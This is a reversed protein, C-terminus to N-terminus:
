LKIVITGCIKDSFTQRKSDWLPWLYGLYCPIADIIHALYRLFSLMPGTVDGTSERLLKTGMVSKGISQGTRGQRFVYNWFFFAIVGLWAIVLVFAGAAGGIANGIVILISFPIGQILGDILSSAVRVIWVAYDNRLGYGPTGYGYGPPPTGYGPPPTGYGPPPAGYGAYGPPPAGYGPPPAAYGPPPAAYGPPTGYGPPPTGYGPPPTGYGPPPANYAPAGYAPPPPPPPEAAAEPSSPDPPLWRTPQSPDAAPPESAVPEEPPPQSPDEPTTM